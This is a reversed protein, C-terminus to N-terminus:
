KSKRNEDFEVKKLIKLLDFFNRIDSDRKAGTFGRIHKDRDVLVLSNVFAYRGIEFNTHIAPLTMFDQGQYDFSFIQSPDGILVEWIATDAEFRVLAEKLKVSPQSLSKGNVDTLISYIKVNDYKDYKDRNKKLKDYFLEHIHYMFLGCTDPCTNQITTFVLFQDKTSSSNVVKGDSTKFEFDPIVYQITDNNGEEDLEITYQGLYPLEIFKNNLTKAFLYILSAPGLLVLIMLGLRKLGSM